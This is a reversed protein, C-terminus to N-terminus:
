VLCLREKQFSLIAPAHYWKGEPTSNMNLRIQKTLRLVQEMCHDWGCQSPAKRGWNSAQVPNDYIDKRASEVDMSNIIIINVM